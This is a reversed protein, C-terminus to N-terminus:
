QHRRVHFDKYKLESLNLFSRLDPVWGLSADSRFQAVVYKDDGSERADGYKFASMYYGLGVEFCLGSRLFRGKNTRITVGKELATSNARPAPPAPNEHSPQGLAQPEQGTSRAQPWNGEHCQLNGGCTGAIGRDLSSTGVQVWWEM